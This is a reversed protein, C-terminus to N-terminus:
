MDKCGSLDIEQIFDVCGGGFYLLTKFFVFIILLIFFIILIDAILVLISLKDKYKCRSIIALITSTIIWPFNNLISFVPSNNPIFRSLIFSIFLRIITLTLAILSLKSKQIKQEQKKEEEDAM